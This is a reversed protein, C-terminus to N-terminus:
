DTLTYGDKLKAASSSPDAEYEARTLTKGGGGDRQNGESGSGGGTGKLINDRYAYSGIVTEIAEEFDAVEGPKSRSYIKNGSADYAILKGDEIKFHDGFIKQAAPGPLITKDGIFKSSAFRTGITEAHYQNRIDDREQKLTNMEEAHSKQAATLQDKYAKVAEAKIEDVKGADILKKADINAVTELAQRAADADDLGDFAKLKAEAAEKAERHSKAEGNLRSITASTGPADFAVEKGDEHVYIPKGDQVVVHGDEDLKLKM